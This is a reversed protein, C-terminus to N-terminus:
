PPRTRNTAAPYDALLALNTRTDYLWLSASPQLRFTLQDVGLSRPWRPLFDRNATVIRNMPDVYTGTITLTANTIGALPRHRRASHRQSVFRFSYKAGLSLSFPRLSFRANYRRHLLTGASLRSASSASMPTSSGTVRAVRHQRELRIQHARRTRPSRIQQHLHRSEHNTIRSSRAAAPNTTWENRLGGTPITTAVRRANGNEVALLRDKFDWTCKLGDIDTMNWECRIITGVQSKLNPIQTADACTPRSAARNTRSVAQAAAPTWRAWTPWPLGKRTTSHPTQALMSSIRDYRYNIRWRQHL